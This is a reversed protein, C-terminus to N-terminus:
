CHGETTPTGIQPWASHGESRDPPRTGLIIIAGVIWMVSRPEGFVQDPDLFADIGDPLTLAMGLRVFGESLEVSLLEWPGDPPPGDM